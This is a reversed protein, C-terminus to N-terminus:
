IEVDKLFSVCIYYNDTLLLLAKMNINVKIHADIRTM